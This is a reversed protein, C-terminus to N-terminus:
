LTTRGLLAAVWHFFTFLGIVISISIMFYYTETETIYDAKSKMKFDIMMIVYLTAVLTVYTLFNIFYQRNYHGICTGM